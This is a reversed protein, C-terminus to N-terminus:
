SWVCEHDIRIPKIQIKKATTALGKSIQNTLEIYQPVMATGARWAIGIKRELFLDELPLITIEKRKHIESHVYLAPFFSIGLGMSVMHRLTDLSTGEYNYMPEADLDDCLDRVQNHLHHGNELILVKEGKLHDRNLPSQRSLWHDPAAGVLLPEYFLPTVELGRHPVPYPSLMIDLQGKALEDQLDKPTGEKVYLRLEPYVKHLNPIVHPLLYPGLTPPVGLRLIGSLGTRVRAAVDKIEQVDALLKRAREAVERGLPTLAVSGTTREVLRNGLKDELSSLQVSLTPQAVNVQRAARGFHLQDAVAVLYSLQRITPM